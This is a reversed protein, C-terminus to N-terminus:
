CGKVPGSTYVRNLDDQLLECDSPSIIEKYLAINDAFMQVSSNSLCHNINDVYLLFLLPGLVSGQPVGSLVPLWDSFAGNIVVWQSRKTLLINWGPYFIAGLM